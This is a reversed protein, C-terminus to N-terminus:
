ITQLLQIKFEMCLINDSIRSNFYKVKLIIEVYFYKTKNKRKSDMVM